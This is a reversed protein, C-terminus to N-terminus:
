GAKRLCNMGDKHDRYVDHGNMWGEEFLEDDDPDFM